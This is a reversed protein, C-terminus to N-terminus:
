KTTIATVPQKAPTFCQFCPACSPGYEARDCLDMSILDSSYISPVVTLGTTGTAEAEDFDIVVVKGGHDLVKVALFHIATRKTHVLSLVLGTTAAAATTTATTAVAAATVTPLNAPFGAILGYTSIAGSSLSHRPKTNRPM